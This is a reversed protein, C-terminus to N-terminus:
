NREDAGMDFKTGLPRKDGDFDDIPAALGGFTTVGADKAPSTGNIHYNGPLAGPTPSDVVVTIFTPDGRFPVATLGTNYPSVFNPDAGVKDTSNAGGYPVQLISYRPKMFETTPTGFVELDISNIPTTDGALGLGVLNTGNWHGARNDWFINNFLVPDSFDPSGAPLQAMLPASHNESALGAAHPNGDSDEATSTTMNRAVTNNVISVKPADDLAIGGGIDTAVNNVVMNNYIDIQYNMPKLLRIGGGDDNSLNGQVLNAYIKVPGSGQSAQNPDQPQEGGVLVGGGEDFAYNFLIQNHHISPVLNNSAPSYGFQSIGGGYEASYNGCIENHDIEYNEAGNFIGVGGALSIGGNNLIRNHHVHVGDNQNDGVYAQGLRIGGGFSGGNSQIVNNSIDLYRGYANVYVGGGRGGRVAGLNAGTIKLGDISPRFSSQFETSRAVVTIAAGPRVDHNGAFAISNLKQTWADPDSFRGDINAGSVSYVSGSSLVKRGGAGVGQLKVGRHLILNEYYTGPNVVILSKGTEPAADIASQIKQGASVTVVNPNYLSGGLVHFTLGTPSTKGGSTVLLEGPGAQFSAPVTATITRGNASVSNVTIQKGGITVKPSSGFGIGNITFSRNGSLRVYPRSVTWVQPTGGSVECQPPESFQSGPNAVFGTIPLIAVDAYTTKGPWVDFVLPLTQYNPNYGPNPNDPDGPDNGIIRYMGPSVGSPTPVNITTTSPLMVEFVGNEDTYVTKILRGTYDRIGVPTHPLGRKDGYYLANPNIQVNLDDTMLGVIRGPVPVDTFLYFDAAPNQQARLEVLKSDCLPMQQGEYPSGGAEAFPPNDVANPGDLGVGAVDVTHLAGACSPPPIQPVFNEGENVNVDEEKVLEYGEPPVAEVVYDGPDLDAFEYGGDFVSEDKTQTALLPAEICNPGVNNPDPLPDGNADKQVECNSPHTWSDTQASRVLDGKVVAGTQPDVDPEGDNDNDVTAYLNVTVDPIGPEWDDAAAYRANQENRTTAYYVIGTIGGNETGQYARKGWDILNKQGAWTIESLLLLLNDDYVNKLESPNAGDRVSGGTRAFRGFGVESVAFHELEYIEDLSYHGNADTLTAYQMSGDKFRVDTDMGGIGQECRNPDGPDCDRIGNDAVGVSNGNADLGNDNFVYGQIQGFWRPIGIDGMHVQEGNRVIVTRFSMIYDLPEDWIAMQYTGAPVNNITFNGGSDGRGLFVQKDTNGIDTLAIYPKNVPDGLGPSQNTGGPRLGLTGRITGDITGSGAQPFSEDKVFGFWILPLRFGEEAGYGDNGEEVWADIAHTGEITTTQVWGSGDPPIAQVEYKNPPLNEIVADGNADTRIQGGTNPIPTPNGDADLIVEGNADKKYQTGLPNGFYDQSVEGLADEIVIDFGGLGKETPVDDEGNVPHVDHFVHLRIKSLPLPEPQLLVTIQGAPDTFHKGGLKYGEADVSVLYKGDPLSLNNANSQDGSMVVPSHSAGPRISPMNNPDDPDGVNDENIVFDFNNIVNNTEVDKVLLSTSSEQAGAPPVMGPVQWWLLALCLLFGLTVLISVRKGRGDLPHELNSRHLKM